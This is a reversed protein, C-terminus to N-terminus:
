EPSPLEQDKPVVSLYKYHTNFTVGLKNREVNRRARISITQGLELRLDLLERESEMHVRYRPSTAIPGAKIDFTGSINLEVVRGSLIVIESSDVRDLYSRAFERGSSTLLSSRRVGTRNRWTIGMDLDHTDLADNLASFGKLLREQGSFRLIDGSTEATVHLETIVSLAQDIPDEAPALAQQDDEPLDGPALSAAEAPVLHLIASGQTFGVLDLGLSSADKAKSAGILERRFADLVDSVASEAMRGAAKPGTFRLELWRALGARVDFNSLADYLNRDLAELIDRDGDEQGADALLEDVSRQGEATLFRDLEERSM